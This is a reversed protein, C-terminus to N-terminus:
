AAEGDGKAALYLGKAWNDHSTTKRQQQGNGSGKDQERGLWTNVFKGMGSATKRRERNDILWQRMERFQQAVDVAPFTETYQDIQTQTFGVEFGARNTPLAIVAPALAEPAASDDAETQEQTQEQTEGETEPTADQKRGALAVSASREAELFGTDVLPKLADRVEKPTAHVRFAIADPDADFWGDKDESALLWIMPALARSALPLRHFKFDDLLKKHLKIWPPARDTYHQFEKWNKPRMRM